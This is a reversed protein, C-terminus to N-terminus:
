GGPELKVYINVSSELHKRTQDLLKDTPLSANRENICFSMCEAGNKLVFLSIDKKHFFREKRWLLGNLKSIVNSGINTNCKIQFM